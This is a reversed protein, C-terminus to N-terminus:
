STAWLTRASSLLHLASSVSLSAIRAAFACTFANNYWSEGRSYNGTNNCSILFRRAACLLASSFSMPKWSSFSTKRDATFITCYLLIKMHDSQNNIPKSPSKYTTSIDVVVFLLLLERPCSIDDGGGGGGGLVLPLIWLFSRSFLKNLSSETADVIELETILLLLRTLDVLLM